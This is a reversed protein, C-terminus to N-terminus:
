LTETVKSLHPPRDPDYGRAVSLANAMRYFSQVMLIPETAGHAHITPLDGNQGALLVDAGRERFANAAAEVSARTEDSQAFCLAAFGPRALALPGHMVEAASFGEAHLGCTEKLKLAAEQAAGLGVGRGIVFLNNANCLASLAASWDLIWAQALQDSLDERARQLAADGTWEATLQVINALAAIFSKTAAVSTEKGAALPAVEDAINALPSSTDNVFGVVLAGRAKASEVSALLDPSKGSQSIALCLAGEMAPAAGYVSNVSLGLSTTLVGARTELLYRAYTAAHDSSGRALTVVARPPAARFRQGLRAFLAKNEALARACAASSEAAEAFMRTAEPALM